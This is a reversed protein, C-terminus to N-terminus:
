AFFFVPSFFSFCFFACLYIIMGLGHHNVRTTKAMQCAPPDIGWAPFRRWEYKPHTTNSEVHLWTAETDCEEETLPLEGRKSSPVYGM